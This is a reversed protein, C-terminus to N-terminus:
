APESARVVLVLNSSKEGRGLTAIWPMREWSLSSPHDFPDITLGQRREDMCPMSV